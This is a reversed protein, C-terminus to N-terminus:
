LTGATPAPVETDIKDTSIELLPELAAVPDGPAKLWRAVTGEVVSEGMQPM